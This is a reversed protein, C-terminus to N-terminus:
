VAKRILAGTFLYPLRPPRDAAVGGKNEVSIALATAQSLIKDTVPLQATKIKTTLVGLSLPRGSDDLAWLQMSDEQGEKVDNLRQVLLYGDLPDFTILQAPLHKDDLLVAVYKIQSTSKLKTQLHSLQAKFQELMSLGSAAAIALLMLCVITAIRWRTAHCPPHETATTPTTETM